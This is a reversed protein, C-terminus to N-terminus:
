SGATDSWLYQVQTYGSIKLRNIKELNSELLGVRSSLETSLSDQYQDFGSPSIVQCNSINVNVIWIFILFPIIIGKQM